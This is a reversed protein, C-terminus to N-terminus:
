PQGRTPKQAQFRYIRGQWAPEVRSNRWAPAALLTAIDDADYLEHPSRDLTHLTRALRCDAFDYGVFWGGPRLGEYAREITAAADLTHHLMLFSVVVDLTEDLEVATADDQVVTTRGPFDAGLKEALTHALRPDIEVGLYSTDPYRTLLEAAMAGSGSGFEAVAGAIPVDGLAWPLSYRRSFSRWPASRCFAREVASM